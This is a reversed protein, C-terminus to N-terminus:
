LKQFAALPGVDVDGVVLPEQSSVYERDARFEEPPVANLAETFSTDVSM